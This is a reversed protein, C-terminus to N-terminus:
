KDQGAGADAGAVDVADAEIKVQRDPREGRKGGALGALIAVDERRQERRLADGIDLVRGDRVLERDVKGRGARDDPAGKRRIVVVLERARADRGVPGVRARKQEGVRESRGAERDHLVHVPHVGGIGLSGVSLLRLNSRSVVAGGLECLECPVSGISRASRSTM